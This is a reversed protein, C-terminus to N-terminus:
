TRSSSIIRISVEVKLFVTEIVQPWGICALNKEITLTSPHTKGQQKIAERYEAEARKFNGQYRANLAANLRNSIDIGELRRAREHFEKAKEYNNLQYYAQGTMYLLHWTPPHYTLEHQKRFLETRNLEYFYYIPMEYAQDVRMTALFDERVEKSMEDNCHLRPILIEM